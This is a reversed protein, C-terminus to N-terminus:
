SLSRKLAEVYADIRQMESPIDIRQPCHSLCQGCAICHDAQRLKPVSRAYGILFARRAKRYELGQREALRSGQGVRDDQRDSEQGQVNPMYGENICKNFHAFVAPINIGYPCPMCYNCATCSVNKM